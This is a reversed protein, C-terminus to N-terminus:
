FFSTIEYMKSGDDLYQNESHYTIEIRATENIRYGINSCMEIDSWLEIESVSDSIRGYCGAAGEIFWHTMKGELIVKESRNTPLAPFPNQNISAINSVITSNSFSLVVVLQLVLFIFFKVFSIFARHWGKYKILYYPIAIVNFIFVCVKLDFSTNYKSDHADALFWMYSFVTTSLLAGYYYIPDYNENNMEFFSFLTQVVWFALMWFTSKKM